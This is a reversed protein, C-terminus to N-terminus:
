KGVMRFFIWMLIGITATLILILESVARASTLADQEKKEESFWIDIVKNADPEVMIKKPRGRGRKPVDLTV